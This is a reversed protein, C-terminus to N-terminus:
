KYIRDMGITNLLDVDYGTWRRIYSNPLYNSMIDFQKDTRTYVNVKRGKYINQLNLIFEEKLSEFDDISKTRIDEKLFSVGDSWMLTGIYDYEEIDYYKNFIVPIANEYSSIDSNLTNMYWPINFIVPKGENYKSYYELKRVIGLTSNINNIKLYKDSSKNHISINGEWIGYAEKKGLMPMVIISTPSYFINLNDIFRLLDIPIAKYNEFNYCKNYIFTHFPHMNQICFLYKMAKKKSSTSFSYKVFESNEYEVRYKPNEENDDIYHINGYVSNALPINDFSRVSYSLPLGNFNIM